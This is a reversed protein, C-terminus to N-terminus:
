EYTVLTQIDYDGIVERGHLAPLEVVFAFGVVTCGIMEVLQAAARSTGGTALLDDVILIRQGPTALDKQVELTAVNYELEYQINHTQGPLKGKKRLMVLGKNMQAAVVSAFILGRAEAGAILDVQCDRFRECFQDSVYRMATPSKLLPSIDKFVIGAKPFDPFDRIYSKLDMSCM